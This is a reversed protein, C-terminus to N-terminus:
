ACMLVNLNRCPARRGPEITRSWCSAAVSWAPIPSRIASVGRGPALGIESGTEPIATTVEGSTSKWGSFGSAPGAAAWGGAFTAIMGISVKAVRNAGSRGDM